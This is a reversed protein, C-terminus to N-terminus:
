TMALNDLLAMLRAPPKTYRVPRVFDTVLANHVDIELNFRAVDEGNAKAYAVGKTRGPAFRVRGLRDGLYRRVYLGFRRAATAPQLQGSLGAKNMRQVHDSWFAVDRGIVIESHGLEASWRLANLPPAALRRVADRAALGYGKRSHDPDALAGGLVARTAKDIILFAVFIDESHPLHCACCDFRVDSGPEDSRMRSRLEAEAFKRLTNYSPWDAEPAGTKRGYAEGLALALRRVSGGPDGDVVSAVLEKLDDHYSLVRTRPVAAFTGLSALSRNQRWAAHMEYWRNLSVGAASAADSMALPKGSGKPAMGMASAREPDDLVIMARLRRIANARQDLSMASWMASEAAPMPSGFAAELIQTSDARRPRPKGMPKATAVIKKPEDIMTLGYRAM